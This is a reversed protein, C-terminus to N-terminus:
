GTASSRKADSKGPGKAGAGSGSGTDTTKASEAGKSDSKSDSKSDGKSDASTATKTDPTSAAGKSGGSRNDTRYFGSGKLVIGIPKLVKQLDGGCVACTTFPDDTMRQVVELHQECSVCRYHYTPM